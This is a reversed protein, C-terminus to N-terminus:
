GTREEQILWRDGSRVFVFTKVVSSKVTASRYVQRFRATAKGDAFSVRIDDVEISEKGPKTLRQTREAEWAKRSLGGPRRFDAAYLDFYAKTDKRSWAAAWAVLTDRVVAEDSATAAPAENASSESAAAPPVGAVAPKSGSDATAVSARDGAARVVPPTRGEGGPSSALLNAIAALRAKAQKNAPNLQLGKAYSQSALKLYVDALNEHATAYGPHTRIAMDLAARAKELQQQQAYLVALNNYPEPLEPHEESLQTYVAIAEAPRGLESLIVGKLFLGQPDRPVSRIHADVKEMAPGWLGQKALRQADALADALVPSPLGLTLLAILLAAVSAPWPGVSSSSRMTM